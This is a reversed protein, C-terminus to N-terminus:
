EAKMLAHYRKKEKEHALLGKSCIWAVLRRAFPASSRGACPRNWMGRRDRRTSQSQEVARFGAAFDAAISRRRAIRCGKPKSAFSSAFSDLNSKRYATRHATPCQRGPAPPRWAYTGRLRNESEGAGRRCEKSISAAKEKGIRAWRATRWRWCSEASRPAEAQAHIVRCYV